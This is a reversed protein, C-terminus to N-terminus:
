RGRKPPHRGTLASKQLATRRFPTKTQVGDTPQWAPVLHRKGNGILDARGMEKLAERLLPWHKEGLALQDQQSLVVAVDESWDDLNALFGEPDTEIDKGNVNIM